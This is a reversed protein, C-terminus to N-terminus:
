AELDRLRQEYTQKTSALKESHEAEERQLRNEWERMIREIESAHEGKLEAIQRAMEDRLRESEADGARRTEELLTELRKVQDGSNSKLAAIEQELAHVTSTFDRERDAANQREREADDRTENLERQLQMIRSEM